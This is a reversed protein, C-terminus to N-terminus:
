AGAIPAAALGRRRAWEAQASVALILLAIAALVRAVGFLDGLVGAFLIPLLAAANSVTFFASLVRGRIQETSQEQLLTQSPVILFANAVGIAFALLMEFLVLSSFGTAAAIAETTESPAGALRDALGPLLSFALLCIGAVVLARDILLERKFRRGLRGVAIVGGVMGLGAPLLLVGVRTLPLWKTGLAMIVGTVLSAVALPVIVYWGILEMGTWAARVTDVSGSQVAAVGLALYAVVAGIWGVSVTLHVSLAFKRLGSKM